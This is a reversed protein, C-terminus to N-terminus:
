FVARSVSGYTHELSCVLMKTKFHRCLLTIPPSFTSYVHFQGGVLKHKLVLSVGRKSESGAFFFWKWPV